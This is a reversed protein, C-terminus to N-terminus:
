NKRIFKLKKLCGEPGSRAGFFCFYGSFSRQEGKHTGFFSGLLGWPGRFCSGAIGPRGSAPGQAGELGQMFLVRCGMVKPFAAEQM